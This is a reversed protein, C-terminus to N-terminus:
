TLNRLHEEQFLMEQEIGEHEKFRRAASNKNWIRFEELMFVNTACGEEVCCFWKSYYFPQSLHKDTIEKHERIQAAKGCRPCRKGEGEVVKYSKEKKNGM